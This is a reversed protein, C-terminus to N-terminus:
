VRRGQDWFNPFDKLFSVFSLCRAWTTWPLENLWFEKRAQCRVKRKLLSDEVLFLELSDSDSESVKDIVGVFLIVKSVSVDSTHLFGSFSDVNLMWPPFNPAISTSRSFPWTRITLRSTYAWHDNTLDNALRKRWKKWSKWAWHHAIRDLVSHQPNLQSKSISQLHCVFGWVVIRHAEIQYIDPLWM